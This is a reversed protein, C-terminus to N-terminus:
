QRRPCTLTSHVYLLIYITFVVIIVNQTTNTFKRVNEVWLPLFKIKCMKIIPIIYICYNTIPSSFILVTDMDDIDATYICGQNSLM